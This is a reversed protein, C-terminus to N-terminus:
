RRTKHPLYWLQARRDGARCFACQLRLRGTAANAQGACQRLFQEQSQETLSASCIPAGIPPPDGFGLRKLLRVTAPHVAHAYVGRIKGQAATVIERISQAVLGAALGRRRLDSRAIVSDLKLVQSGPEAPSQYLRFCAVACLTDCGSIGVLFQDTHRDATSNSDLATAIRGIEDSTAHRDALARFDRETIPGIALGPRSM